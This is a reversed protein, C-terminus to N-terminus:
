NRRNLLLLKFKSQNNVTKLVAKVQSLTTSFRSPYGWCVRLYIERRFLRRKHELEWPRHLLRRQNRWNDPRPRLDLIRNSQLIRCAMTSMSTRMMRRFTRNRTYSRKTHTKKSSLIRFLWKQPLLPSSKRHSKKMINRNLVTPIPRQNQHPHHYKKSHLSSSWLHFRSLRHSALQLLSLHLRYREVKIMIWTNEWCVGINEM